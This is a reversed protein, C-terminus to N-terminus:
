IDTIKNVQLINKIKISIYFIINKIMINLFQLTELLQESVTM